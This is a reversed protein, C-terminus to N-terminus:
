FDRPSFDRSFDPRINFLSIMFKDQFCICLQLPSAYVPQPYYLSNYHRSSSYVPQPYFITNYDSSSYNAPFQIRTGVKTLVNFFNVNMTVNLPGHM